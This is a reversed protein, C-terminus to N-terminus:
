NTIRMIGHKTHFLKYNLGFKCNHGNQNKKLLFREWLDPNVYKPKDIFPISNYETM